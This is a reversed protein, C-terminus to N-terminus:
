GANIAIQEDIRRALARITPQEFVADMSVDVAFKRMVISVMTIAGLSDGGNRFFNDDISITEADVCLLEAWIDRLDIETRNRPEEGGPTPNAIVLASVDAKGSGNLPILEVAHLRAPVMYGPLRLRLHERVDDLFKAQNHYPRERRTTATVRSPLSRDVARAFVTYMCTGALDKDQKTEVGYGRQRLMNEITGLRGDLDHVELLLRDIRPWDDDNIGLLVDLEAKEVDIKLHESRLFHALEPELAPM